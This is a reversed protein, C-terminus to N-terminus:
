FTTWSNLVDKGETPGFKTPLIRLVSFVNWPKKIDSWSFIWKSSNSNSLNSFDDLLNFAFLTTILQVLEYWKYLKLFKFFVWSPTNSKTFNCALAQFWVLLLVGGHTNKVNKFQAFPVLDRLADRSLFCGIGYKWLKM